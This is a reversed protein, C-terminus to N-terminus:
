GCSAAELERLNIRYLPIEVPKFVHAEAFRRTTAEECLFYVEAADHDYCSTLVDQTLAQLARAVKLPDAGPRIGLSEMMLPRQVPLFVLPGDDDYACRIFTQSHELVDPDFLNGATVKLWELMTGRDSERFPRVIVHRSM